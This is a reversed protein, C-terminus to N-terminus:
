KLPSETTDILTRCLDRLHRLQDVTLNRTMTQAIHRGHRLGVRRQTESGADTLRIRSARGDDPDVVREVLGAAELRAV